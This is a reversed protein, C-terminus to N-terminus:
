GHRGWAFSYKAGVAVVAGERLGLRSHLPKPLNALTLDAAKALARVRVLVRGGARGGFRIRLAFERVEKAGVLTLVLNDKLVGPPNLKAPVAAMVKVVWELGVTHEVVTVDTRCVVTGIKFLLGTVFLRRLQLTQSM